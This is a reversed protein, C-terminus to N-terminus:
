DVFSFENLNLLIRCAQELGNRGAYRSLEGAEAPKPERSLVRRFARVM